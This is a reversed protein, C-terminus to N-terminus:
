GSGSAVGALLDAVSYVLSGVFPYDEVREVMGSRIPNELVYKAVIVSVEEDRLVHEFGYRQWLVSHYAKSGRRLSRDKTRNCGSVVPSWDTRSFGSM